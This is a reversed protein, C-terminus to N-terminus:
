LVEDPLDHTWQMADVIAGKSVYVDGPCPEVEALKGVRLAKNFRGTNAVWSANTLIIYDDGQEKVCGIQYNTVARILVKAGKDFFSPKSM